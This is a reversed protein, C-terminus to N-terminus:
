AAIFRLGGSSFENDYRFDHYVPWSRGKRDEITASVRFTGWTWIELKCRPNALTRPVTRIPNAFTSHLQYTVTGVFPLDPGDLYLFVRYLPRRGQDRRVPVTKDTTDPDIVSDKVEVALDPAMCEGEKYNCNPLFFWSERESPLSSVWLGTM